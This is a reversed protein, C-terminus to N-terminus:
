ILVVEQIFNTQTALFRKLLDFTSPAPKQPNKRAGQETDIIPSNPFYMAAEHAREVAITKQPWLFVRLTVM